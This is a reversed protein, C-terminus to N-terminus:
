GVLKGVARELIFDSFGIFGLVLYVWHIPSKFFLKKESGQWARIGRQIM